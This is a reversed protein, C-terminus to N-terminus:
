GLHCAACTALFEGYLEARAPWATTTRARDGLAHVQATLELVDDSLEGHATLDARLLPADVLVAAGATWADDDRSVLAEWMRDAAWQHRLMHRPADHATPDPPAASSEFRPGAGLAEHCEGCSNALGGAARAAARLSRASVARTALEDKATMFPRWSAPMPDTRERLRRAPPGVGALDGAIVADKIQVADQFHQAMQQPTDAPPDARDSAAPVSGQTSPAPHPASCAAAAVLVALLARM